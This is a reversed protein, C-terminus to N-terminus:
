SRQLYLHIVDVGHHLTLILSSVTQGGCFAVVKQVKEERTGKETEVEGGTEWVSWGGDTSVLFASLKVESHGPEQCGGSQM